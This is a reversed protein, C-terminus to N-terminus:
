VYTHSDNTGDMWQDIAHLFIMGLLWKVMIDWQDAEVSAGTQSGQTSAADKRESM